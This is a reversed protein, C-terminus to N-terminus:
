AVAERLDSTAREPAYVNIPVGTGLEFGAAITLRPV